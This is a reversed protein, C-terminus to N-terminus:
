WLVAPRSLDILSVYGATDGPAVMQTQPLFMSSSITASHLTTLLRLQFGAPEQVLTCVACSHFSEKNFEAEVFMDLHMDM